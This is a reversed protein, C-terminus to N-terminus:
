NKIGIKRIGMTQRACVLNPLQNEHVLRLTLSASAQEGGKIGGDITLEVGGVM